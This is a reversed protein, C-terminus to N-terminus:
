RWCRASRSRFARVLCASFNCFSWSFDSRRLVSRSLLSSSGCPSRSPDSDQPEISALTAKPAIRPSSELEDSCKEGTAIAGSHLPSPRQRHWDTPDAPGIAVRVLTDSLREIKARQLARSEQASRDGMLPWRLIKEPYEIGWFGDSAEVDRRPEYLHLPAKFDGEM